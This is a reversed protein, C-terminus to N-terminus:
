SKHQDREATGEQQGPGGDSNFRVENPRPCPPVEPSYGHRKKHLNEIGPYRSYGRAGTAPTRFAGFCSIAPHPRRSHRPHEIASGWTHLVSDACLKRAKMDEIM